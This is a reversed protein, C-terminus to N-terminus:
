STVEFSLAECQARDITITLVDGRPSRIGLEHVFHGNRQMELDFDAQGTIENAVADPCWRGVNDLGHADAITTLDQGIQTVGRQTIFYSFYSNM